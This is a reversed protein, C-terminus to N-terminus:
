SCIGTVLFGEAVLSLRTVLTSEFSLYDCLRWNAVESPRFVLMEIQMLKVPDQPLVM